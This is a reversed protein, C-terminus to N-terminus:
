WQGHQWIASYLFLLDFDYKRNQGGARNSQTHEPCPVRRGACPHSFSRIVV